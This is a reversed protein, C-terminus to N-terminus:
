LIPSRGSGVGSGQRRETNASAWLVDVRYSGPLYSGSGRGGSILLRVCLGVGTSENSGFAGPRVIPGGRGDRIRDRGGGGGAPGRGNRCGDGGLGDRGGGDGGGLERRDGVGDEDHGGGGVDDRLGLVSTITQRVIGGLGM